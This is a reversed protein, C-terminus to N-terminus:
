FFPKEMAKWHQVSVNKWGNEAKTMQEATRLGEYKQEAALITETFAGGAAQFSKLWGFLETVFRDTDYANRFLENLKGLLLGVVSLREDFSAFKLRELTSDSYQGEM